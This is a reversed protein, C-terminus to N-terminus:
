QRARGEMVRFIEASFFSLTDGSYQQQPYARYVDLRSGVFCSAQCLVQSIVGWGAILERLYLALNVFEMLIPRPQTRFLYIIALIEKPVESICM